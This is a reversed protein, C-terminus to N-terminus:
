NNSFKEIEEKIINLAHQSLNNESQTQAARNKQFKRTRAVAKEVNEAAKAAQDRLKGLDTSALRHIIGRPPISYPMRNPGLGTSILREANKIANFLIIKEVLDGKSEPFSKELYQQVRGSITGAQAEAPWLMGMLVGFSMGAVRGLIAMGRSKLAQEIAQEVAEFGIEQALEGVSAIEALRRIKEDLIKEVMEQLIGFDDSKKRPIKKAQEKM